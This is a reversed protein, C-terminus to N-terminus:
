DDYRHEWPVCPTPHVVEKRRGNGPRKAKNIAPKPATPRSAIWTDVEDETWARRNPTILIGPPFGHDRIARWLTMRSNFVGQRVLWHYDVYMM